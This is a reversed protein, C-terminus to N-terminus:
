YFHNNMLCYAHIQWDTKTCVEGLTAVFRQRDFADCFIAERRGGRNMVHYIAGSYEIRLPRPMGGELLGAREVDLAPSAGKRLTSKKM